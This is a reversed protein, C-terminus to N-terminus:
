FGKRKQNEVVERTRDTKTRTNGSQFQYNVKVLIPLTSMDVVGQSYITFEPSSIEDGRYIFKGAFPLVGTLGAKLGKGFSKELSLMYLADSFTKGQIQNMPSAHQLTASLSFGHRFGSYASAGTERTFRHREGINEQLARDGPISHVDFLKLYFNLGAKQTLSLSGTFQIGYHHIDGLNYNRTEFIGNETVKTLNQIVDTLKDFFLRTSLHNNGPRVSYELALSSRFGPRLEPNGSKVTYPDDEQQAPNLQYIGPYTIGRRFSFRLGSAAGTKFNASGNPLLVGGTNKIGGDTGTNYYEFRLGASLELKGSNYGLSGHGGCIHDNYNFEEQGRNKMFHFRGQLGTRLKLTEHLRITHDIRTHISNQEPNLKNIQILGTEEHTYTTANEANLHHHSIDITLENESSENFLHKFFLSNYASHNIDDDEKVAYWKRNQSGSVLMEAYGDHEHSFPNFFGYFGLQNKDNLNLDLGYHFRHSWNKQKVYQNSIIEEAVEKNFIKRQSMERINFYLMEGNCSTFLSVKGTVYNLSYAPFIFVDTNKVPLEAHIHGDIGMDPEKSLIINIVGTVNGDYNSPPSSMIEIKDIRAAPLQSLYSRNRERGNVLILINHSGELSINQQLDMHIGPILKLVDTGTNSTNHMTKSIYFTSKNDATTAKIRGAMVLVNGLTVEKSSLRIIGLDLSRGPPLFIDESFTEYGIASIRILCTECNIDPLSFEGAHNGAAGGLLHIGSRDFVAVNAFAVPQDNQKEAVTGTIVTSQQAQLTSFGTGTVLLLIMTYYKTLSKTASEMNM